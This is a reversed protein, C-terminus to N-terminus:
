NQSQYELTKSLSDNIKLTSDHLKKRFQVEDLSTVNLVLDNITDDIVQEPMTNSKIVHIKKHKTESTGEDYGILEEKLKEGPRLGTVEIKIQNTDYGSLKIFDNAMEYLNIEDGMDLVMIESANGVAGAKIVLQSAEQLTM